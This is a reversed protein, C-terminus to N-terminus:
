VQLVTPTRHDINHSNGEGFVMRAPACVTVAKAGAKMLTKAAEKLTAGTTYVDDVLLLRQGSVQDLHRVRFARHMNKKRQKKSLGVQADTKRIRTMMDLSLPWEKRRAIEKALLLSQNFERSRLRSLHVPVATVWDVELGSLDAMFLDVINKALGTRQEYKLLCIAKAMVGEYRYPTIAHSFSPPDERCDGCVHSPSHLLTSESQFPASCVPCVPGNLRLMSEWCPTCFYVHSPTNKASWSHTIIKSACHQCAQPYILDLITEFFPGLRTTGLM